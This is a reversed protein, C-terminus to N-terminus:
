KRGAQAELNRREREQMEQIDKAMRIQAESIKTFAIILQSYNEANKAINAANTISAEKNIQVQRALESLADRSSWYSIIFSSLALFIM